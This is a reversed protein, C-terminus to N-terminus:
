KDLKAVAAPDTVVAVPCHSLAGVGEVVSGPYWKGNEEKKTHSGMAILDVDKEGAFKLIELHPRKGEAVSYEAELGDTVDRCFTTLKETQEKIRSDSTSDSEEESPLMYFVYLKSGSVSAVRFAFRLAYKCSESYDVAALINKFQLQKESIPKNVLIVPCRAYHIVGETTSGIKGVVRQVESSKCSEAHPGLVIL